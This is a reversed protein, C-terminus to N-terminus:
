TPCKLAYVRGSLDVAYIMEDTAIPSAGFGWEKKAEVESQSPSNLVLWRLEGSKRDLVALSGARSGPYAGAGVTGAVV